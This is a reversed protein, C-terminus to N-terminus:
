KIAFQPNTRDLKYMPPPDMLQMYKLEHIITINKLAPENYTGRGVITGSIVYAPIRGKKFEYLYSVLDWVSGEDLSPIIIRYINDIMVCEYCCTGPENGIRGLDGDYIGSIEDNPIDKFRIFLNM